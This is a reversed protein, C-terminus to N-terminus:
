FGTELKNNMRRLSLAFLDLNLRAQYFAHNGFVPLRM